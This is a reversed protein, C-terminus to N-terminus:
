GFGPAHGTWASPQEPTRERVVAMLGLIGGVGIALAVPLSVVLAAFFAAGNTAIWSNDRLTMGVWPSLLLYPILSILGVLGLRMGRVGRGSGLAYSSMALTVALALFYISFGIPVGILEDGGVSRHVQNLKTEYRMSIGGFALGMAAALVWAAPRLRTGWVRLRSRSEPPGGQSDADM